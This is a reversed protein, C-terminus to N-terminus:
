EGLQEGIGVLQAELEALTNKLVIPINDFPTEGLLSAATGKIEDRKTDVQGRLNNALGSATAMETDATEAFKKTKDLVEKTPAKPSLVAPEPHEISGCVPCPRGVELEAAM